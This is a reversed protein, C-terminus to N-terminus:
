GPLLALSTLLPARSEGGHTHCTHLSGVLVWRVAFFPTCPRGRSLTHPPTACPPGRLFLAACQHARRLSVSRLHAPRTCRRGATPFPKSCAPQPRREIAIVGALFRLPWCCLPRMAPEFASTLEVPRRPRPLPQALVARARTPVASTAPLHCLSPRALRKTPDPPRGPDLTRSRQANSLQAHPRWLPPPRGPRARLMQPAPTAWRLTHASPRAIPKAGNRTRLFCCFPHTRAGCAAAAHSCARM